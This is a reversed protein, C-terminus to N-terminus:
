EIADARDFEAHSRPALLWSALFAAVFMVPLADLFGSVLGGPLQAIVYSWPFSYQRPVSTFWAGSIRMELLMGIVASSVAGAGAAVVAKVATRGPRRWVLFVVFAAAAYPLPDLLGSVAILLRDSPEPQGVLRLVLSLMGTLAQYGFFLAAVILALVSSSSRM